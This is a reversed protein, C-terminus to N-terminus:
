NPSAGKSRVTELNQAVYYHMRTLYETVTLNLSKAIRKMDAKDAESVRIAIMCDKALVMRLRDPDTDKLIKALKKIRIDTTM